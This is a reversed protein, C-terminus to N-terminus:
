RIVFTVSHRVPDGAVSFWLTYTGQALGTTDVNFVYGGLDADYRFVNGPNANGGSTLSVTAGGASQLSLGTVMTAASSQNAGAADTLRLKIPITSGSNHPQTQDFLAQVVYTV